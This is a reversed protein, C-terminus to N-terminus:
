WRKHKKELLGQCLVCRVRKIALREPPIEDGCDVCHAGDFDPHSEPANALRVNRLGENRMMETLEEAFEMYKEDM